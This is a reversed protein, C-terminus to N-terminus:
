AAAKKMVVAELYRLAHEKDKEEMAMVLLMMRETISKVKELNKELATRKNYDMTKRRKLRKRKGRLHITVKAGIELKVFEGADTKIGIEHHGCCKCTEAIVIGKFEKDKM